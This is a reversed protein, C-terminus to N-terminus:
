EFGNEEAWGKLQKNDFVDGPSLNEKIYTVVEDLDIGLDIHIVGSRVDVDIGESLWGKFDRIDRSTIM